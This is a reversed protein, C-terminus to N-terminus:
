ELIDLLQIDFILFTSIIVISRPPMWNNGLEDLGLPPSVTCAALLISGSGGVREEICWDALHGQHSCRYSNKNPRTRLSVSNM